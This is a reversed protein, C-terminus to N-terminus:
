CTCTRMKEEMIRSCHGINRQVLEYSYYAEYDFM